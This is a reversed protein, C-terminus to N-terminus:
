DSRYPALRTRWRRAGAPMQRRWGDGSEVFVENGPFRRAKNRRTKRTSEAPLSLAALWWCPGMVNALRPAVRVEEGYGDIIVALPMAAPEIELTVTVRLLKVWARGSSM